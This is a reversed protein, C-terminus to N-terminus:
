DDPQGIMQSVGSGAPIMPWVNEEEEVWFDMVVCRPTKIAEDIAARADAKNTIKMGVCGYAEALAKFDPSYKPKGEEPNKHGLWVGSYNHDYFKEQWQRVMGLYLNNLIVIKIPVEEIACVALEQINMQVSGDGAIDLVLRDPFAFQAGMAAPLGYGMTGQGGSSLFTRANEYQWFHAAWMQHQGVETAVIADGGCVEHFQQIVHQPRLKDDQPFRLPYERKWLQIQEIWEPHKKPEVTKVLKRMVRGCDGVIPVDVHVTKSISSPDVDIQVVCERRPAFEDLKGTVRDDFRAGVSIILDCDHMAFNGYQTGHMGLMRVSNPHTEPFCGLGLLTTTVPIDCKESLEVLAENCGSNVAGQGCYLLPRKAKKIADAARKIQQFNGEYVPKYSRMNVKAPYKYDKLVGRQVDKPLDILVPGPRGTTAIHFCEKIIRPLDKVDKVLVNYKTCPRTIGVVDAEQFADSGIATTPVQGTVVVMPASDSYATSLATVLNTAGPGSTAVVVGPKGSARAYGDAMHGAGQEHRVLVMRFEDAQNIRDFVDLIAGGPYCFVVEVGEQIFADIVIDAGTMERPQNEAAGAGNTQADQEPASAKKTTTM